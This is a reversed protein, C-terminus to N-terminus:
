ATISDKGELGGCEVLGRLRALEKPVSVAGLRGGLSVWLNFRVMVGGCERAGIHLQVSLRDVVYRGAVRYVGDVRRLRRYYRLDNRHMGAERLFSSISILNHLLVAKETM